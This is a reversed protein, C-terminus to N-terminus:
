QHDPPTTFARYAHQSVLAVGKQHLAGYAFRGKYLHSPMTTIILCAANDAGHRSSQM